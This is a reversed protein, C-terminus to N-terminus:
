LQIMGPDVGEIHRAEKYLLRVRTVDPVFFGSVARM